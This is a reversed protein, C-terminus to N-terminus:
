NRRINVARCAGGCACTAEWALDPRMAPMEAGRLVRYTIPNKWVSPQGGAAYRCDRTGATNERYIPEKCIYGELFIQNTKTYDTFEELFHIERVFVSLVLRNKAARM